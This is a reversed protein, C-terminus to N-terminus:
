ESWGMTEILDDPDTLALGVANAMSLAITPDEVWEDITWSVHRDDRGDITIYVVDECLEVVARDTEFTTM